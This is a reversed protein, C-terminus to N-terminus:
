PSLQDASVSLQSDAALTPPLPSWATELESTHTRISESTGARRFGARLNFIEGDLEYSQLDHVPDVPLLCGSKECQTSKV